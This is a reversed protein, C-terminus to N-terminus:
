GNTGAGSIFMDGQRQAQEIRRCAIDFYGPDREIGIFRRGMQVAAVGTTGSGSFPDVVIQGPKTSTGVIHSMLSVPKECPHKGVYGSVCNYVWNDSKMRSDYPLFPRRLEEYEKRLEEYEKRLEEYEKRLESAPFLARCKAYDDPNPLSSGEEWRLYLASDRGIHDAIQRYNLGANVRATRFYEGIPQYVRRHLDDCARDYGSAM